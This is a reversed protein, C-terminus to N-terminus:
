FDCHEICLRVDCLFFCLSPTLCWCMGNTMQTLSCYCKWKFLITWASCFLLACCQIDCHIETCTQSWCDSGTVGQLPEAKSVAYLSLHPKKELMAALEHRTERWSVWLKSQKSSLHCGYEDVWPWANRSSFLVLTLHHCSKFRMMWRYTSIYFSICLCFLTSLLYNMLFSIFIILSSCYLTGCAKPYLAVM